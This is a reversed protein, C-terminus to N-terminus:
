CKLNKHLKNYQRVRLYDITAHLENLYDNTNNFSWVKRFRDYM